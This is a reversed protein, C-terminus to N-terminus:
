NCALNLTTQIGNGLEKELRLLNQFRLNCGLSKMKGYENGPKDTCDHAAKSM